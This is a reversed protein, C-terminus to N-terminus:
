SMTAPEHFIQWFENVPASEPIMEIEWPTSECWRNWRGLMADPLDRGLSLQTLIDTMLEESTYYEGRRSKRFRKLPASYWADIEATHGCVQMIEQARETFWALMRQHEAASQKYYVTAYTVGPRTPMIRQTRYRFQPM